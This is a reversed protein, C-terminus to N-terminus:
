FGYSLGILISYIFYDDVSGTAGSVQDELSWDAFRQDVRALGEVKFHRSLHRRYGLELSLSFETGADTTIDFTGGGQVPGSADDVDVTAVGIGAGWFFENAGDPGGYTREIWAGIGTSIAPADVTPVSPDQTIGVIKAPAEFDYAMQELTFRLAWDDGLRTRAYIGYNSRDNSPEGDGGSMGALLGVEWDTRLGARNGSPASCSAALISLGVLPLVHIGANM